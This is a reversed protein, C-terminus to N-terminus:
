AKGRVQNRAAASAAPLRVELRAGGGPRNSAEITGGHRQVIGHAVTLGLGTGRADLRSTVFAEFIQPLVDAPIGPGDDDVDIAIWPRGGGAFRRSHVAITGSFRVADLANRLLNVFVQVLRDADGIVLDDASTGDRFTVGAAKEDISVLLWAEAVIRQVQVPEMKQRRVHAFDLLSESIRRLRGTVRKMRELRQQAAPDTVTEILKEISGQLVALPTNLEHTVSASLMGLSALRDQDALSKRATELMENKRKLDEAVRELTALAQALDSERKRLEAVTANRSGMIQGIEDDTIAAPDILEHETDGRQTAEDAALMLRLPRYVYTPMIVLELLLVALVYVVALAAAVLWKARATEPSVSLYVAASLVLFFLNHLVILKPRIKLNGFAKGLGSLSKPGGNREAIGTNQMFGAFAGRM